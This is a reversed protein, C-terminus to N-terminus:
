PHVLKSELRIPQSPLSVCTMMGQGLILAVNALAMADQMPARGGDQQHRPPPEQMHGDIIDHGHNTTTTEVSVPSLPSMPESTAM